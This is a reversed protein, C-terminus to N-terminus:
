RKKALLLDKIALFLFLLAAAYPQPSLIFLLTASSHLLLSFRHSNQEWLPHHCNQLAFTLVGWVTMGIVATLYAARMYPAIGTLVLLSVSQVSSGTQQGFFPLFLLLATSCDLAGFILSRLHREQQRRDEEAVTLMQGGSLLDDVTISFFAAIAKLSDISPYGRGSEWKSVATRSVYLAAALEEQTLGKQKRLEQLKQNFEM